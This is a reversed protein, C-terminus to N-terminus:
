TYYDLAVTIKFHKITAWSSVIFLFSFLISSIVALWKAVISTPNIILQINKLLFGACMIQAIILSICISIAKSNEQAM